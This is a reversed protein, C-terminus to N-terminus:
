EADTFQLSCAVQLGAVSRQTVECVAEADALAAGVGEGEYVPQEEREGLSLWEAVAEGVTLWHEVTDSESLVDAPVLTEAVPEGAAGAECHGVCLAVPLGLAESPAPASPWPPVAEAAGEPVLLLLPVSLLLAEGQAVCVGSGQEETLLEWEGLTLRVKEPEVAGM